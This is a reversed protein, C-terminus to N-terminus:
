MPAAPPVLRAPRPRGRDGLVLGRTVLRDLLCTATRAHVPRSVSQRAGAEDFVSETRAHAEGDAGPPM